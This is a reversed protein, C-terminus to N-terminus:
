LAWCVRLRWEGCRKGDDCGHRRKRTIQPVSRARGAEQLRARCTRVRCGSPGPAADGRCPAPVLRLAPTEAPPFSCPQLCGDLVRLRSHDLPTPSAATCSSRAGVSCLWARAAVQRSVVIPVSHVCRGATLMRAMVYSIQCALCVRTFPLQLLRSVSQPQPRVLMARQNAPTRPALYLLELVWSYLFESQLQRRIGSCPGCSRGRWLSQERSPSAVSALAPPRSAPLQARIPV